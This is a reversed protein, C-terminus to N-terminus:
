PHRLTEVGGLRASLPHRRRAGSAQGRVLGHGRRYKTWDASLLYYYAAVRYSRPDKEFQRLAESVPVSAAQLHDEALVRLADRAKALRVADKEAQELARADAETFDRSSGRKKGLREAELKARRGFEEAVSGATSMADSWALEITAHLTLADIGPQGEVFRVADEFRRVDDSRLISVLEEMSTVDARKVPPVGRAAQIEALFARAETPNMRAGGASDAKQSSGSCGALLLALGITRRAAAYRPGSM